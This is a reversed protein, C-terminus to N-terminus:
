SDAVNLVVVCLNSCREFGCRDFNSCREFGCRDLDGCSSVDRSEPLIAFYLPEVTDAKMQDLKDVAVNICCQTKGFQDQCCILAEM